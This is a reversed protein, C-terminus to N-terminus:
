HTTQPTQGKEEEGYYNETMTIRNLPVVKLKYKDEGFDHEFRDVFYEAFEKDPFPGFTTSSENTPHTCWVVYEPEEYEDNIM